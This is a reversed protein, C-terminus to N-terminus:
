QRLTLSVVMTTRAHLLLANVGVVVLASIVSVLPTNCHFLAKVTICVEDFVLILEKM